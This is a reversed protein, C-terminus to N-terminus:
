TPSTAGGSQSRMDARIAIRTSPRVEAPASARVMAKTSFRLARTGPGGAATVAATGRQAENVSRWCIVQVTGTEDELSLLVVGKATEPQQRLTMIRCRCGCGTVWRPLSSRRPVRGLASILLRRPFGRRFAAHAHRYAFMALARYTRRTRRSQTALVLQRVHGGPAWLLLSPLQRSDEAPRAAVTM